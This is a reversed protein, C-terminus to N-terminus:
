EEVVTAERTAGGILLDGVEGEDTM